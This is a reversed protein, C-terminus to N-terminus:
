ASRNKEFTMAETEFRGMQSSMEWIFEAWGREPKSISM